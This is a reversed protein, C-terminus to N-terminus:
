FVQMREPIDLERICDDKEMMYKDFLVIPEFEDELRIERFDNSGRVHSRALFLEDVDGFLERAEQLASSSVQPEHLTCVSTVSDVVFDDIEDVFDIEDM